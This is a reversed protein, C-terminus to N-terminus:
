IFINILLNLLYIFIVIKNIKTIKLNTYAINKLIVLVTKHYIMFYIM